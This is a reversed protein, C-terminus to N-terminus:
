KDVRTEIIQLQRTWGATIRVPTRPDIGANDATQIFQNLEALTMGQKPNEARRFVKFMNSTM